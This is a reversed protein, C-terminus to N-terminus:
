ECHPCAARGSAAALDVNEATLHGSRRLEGHGRFIELLEGIVREREAPEDGRIAKTVCTQMHRELILGNVKDLASQVANVQNIIDICYQDDELMRQIGRVHGEVSKLRRLVDDKIRDNEAM